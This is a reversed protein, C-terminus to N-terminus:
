FLNCTNTMDILKVKTSQAPSDFLGAATCGFIQVLCQFQPQYVDDVCCMSLCTYTSKDSKCTLRSRSSHGLQCALGTPLCTDSQRSEAFFTWRRMHSQGSAQCWFSEQCIIIIWTSVDWIIHKISKYPLWGNQSQQGQELNGSHSIKAKPALM